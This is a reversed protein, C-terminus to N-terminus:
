LHLIRSIEAIFNHLSGPWILLTVAVGILAGWYHVDHAINGGRGTRALYWSIGLFLFAFIPGPIPIPLFFMYLSMGPFLLISSFIIGSIGGSAGVASYLHNDKNKEFSRISAGSVIFLYFVLYIARGTFNNFRLVLNEEVIPGFYYLGLMNFLLHPMSAHVLGHTLFRWWEKSRAIIYPSFLLKSFIERNSFATFSVLCTIGIIFYTVIGPIM